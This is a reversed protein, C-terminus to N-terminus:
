AESLFAAAQRVAEALGLRQPVVGEPLGTLLRSPTRPDLLVFVGRDDARRVLRGFAQRLRHRAIADDYAGPRGGSLHIRRERHLISPRPWPVRDFVLLRLARGPVDVGDRLADTGLLCSDEEARFIDVLTASDMADVHQAYLPLGAEALAPAIRAHVDRLRRIATFLGLAGGGSALFLLQMAAAIQGPSDRSIDEVVFARTNAAYDFPSPLAARIAPNPLHQVGTRAEAERWAADPDQKAADRLTASAILVGHAPAAVQSAFPVTPDLWHRHLGADIDRGERRSLALWDVYTPRQGPEAPPERLRALMSIWATLPMIARRDISRTATELRIRDGTELEQDPDELLDGLLKNLHKLPTRLRELADELLAAAAPLGDHLPHLDCEADYLPDGEATRALVQARAARLFNEAVDPHAEAPIVPRPDAPTEDQDEARDEEAQPLAAWRDWWGPSPLARVAREILELPPVLAPHETLLEDLRRRLGRARSRGGENGLLWRRLEAMEAGSLEASFAGDAADFLHHGEDFVYRLAAGDDGGGLAAQVMVLAHNAVVLRAHAARRISHEVYCRKWHPCASHICEGRRDALLSIAGPPFLEVLWGPFDGGLLDGDRTALAWRSVLAMAPLRAPMVAATAEDYNLLCLYNERGKRIVVRQRREEPDPYLRALEQDLQRQLNRTYTAIWVPAGNREAWLSAPAVYGLTKGTGTGAEALVLRPEGPLERPTFAMSAASAFDGQSPRQEAGDGLIEALRARAEAPTVSFSGPPPPPSPEEWEPLNRWVKLGDQSPRATAQGLAALVSEAWPWQAAEWLRAALTAADRNLPANRARALRRLLETAIEPLLAAASEADAPPPLDLALALGRPTPPAPQAPLCFAFLELLDWAGPLGPLNLRKATAPAHVCIPPGLERLAAPVERATLLSLEGDPTLLAARGPAPTVLAPAGPLVLRPPLAGKAGPTSSM